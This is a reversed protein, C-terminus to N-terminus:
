EANEHRMMFIILARGIRDVARMLFRTGALSARAVMGLVKFGSTKGQLTLALKRGRTIKFVHPKGKKLKLGWQTLSGESDKFGFPVIGRGSYPTAGLVFEIPQPKPQRGDTAIVFYYPKQGDRKLAFPLASGMSVIQNGYIAM